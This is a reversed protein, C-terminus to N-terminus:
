QLPADKQWFQGTDESVDLKYIMSDGNNVTYACWLYEGDWALGTPFDFNDYRNNIIAPSYFSEVVKGTTTDIRYLVLEIGSVSWLYEGDFALGHHNQCPSAISSIVNGKTDLKYIKDIEDGRDYAAVWLYEGDWALGRPGQGPSEFYDIINGKTGIKCIYSGLNSVWLFEGDYTLGM